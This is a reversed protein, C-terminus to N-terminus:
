PGNAPACRLRKERAENSSNLQNRRFVLVLRAARDLDIVLEQCLVAGINQAANARIMRNAVHGRRSEVSEVPVGALHDAFIEVLEYKGLVKRDEFINGRAAGLIASGIGV